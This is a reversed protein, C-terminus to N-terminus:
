LLLMKLLPRTTTIINKWRKSSLESQIQKKKLNGCLIAELQVRVPTIWSRQAPDKPETVKRRVKGKVKEQKVKGSTSELKESPEKTNSVNETSGIKKGTERNLKIKKAPATSSSIKDKEPTRDMKEVDPEMKRKPSPKVIETVELKSIKMSSSEFDKDVSKEETKKEKKEKAILLNVKRM